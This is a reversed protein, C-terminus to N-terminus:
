YFFLHLVIADNVEKAAYLFYQVPNFFASQTNTLLDRLTFQSKIFNIVSGGTGLFRGSRVVNM